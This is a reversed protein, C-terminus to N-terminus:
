VAGVAAVRVGMPHRGFRPTGYGQAVGPSARAPSGGEVARKRAARRGDMASGVQGTACFCEPGPMRAKLLLVRSPALERSLQEIREVLTGSCASRLIVPATPDDSARLEVARGSSLLSHLHDYSM